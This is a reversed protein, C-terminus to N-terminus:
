KNYRDRAKDIYLKKDDNTMYSDFIRLLYCWVIKRLRQECGTEYIRQRFLNEDLLRGTTSDFMRFFEKKTLCRKSSHANGHLWQSARQLFNERRIRLSVIICDNELEILDFNEEVPEEIICWDDIPYTQVQFHFCNPDISSHLICCDLDFDDKIITKDNSQLVYNSHLHFIRNILRILLSYSILPTDLSFRKQIQCRQNEYM